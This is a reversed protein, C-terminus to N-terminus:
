GNDDAEREDHEAGEAAEAAAVENKRQTLWWLGGLFVSGFLVVDPVHRLAQWTLQPLPENPVHTPLGLESPPKPGIVFVCTGGAETAGYVYPYYTDYNEAVRRQAEALLEERSGTITAEAPCAEACAPGGARTACMECKRVRPTASHWEYTPVGFPCAMLCYRCGMCRNPDYTVPGAPTKRLAAVPCVSVCTPDECHMCLRRVYMDNGRDMLYTFTEEDFGSAEHRRQGNAQQCAEVCSGCGICKTVDVLIARHAM